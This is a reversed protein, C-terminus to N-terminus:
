KKLLFRQALGILSSGISTGVSIAASALQAGTSAVSKLMVLAGGTSLTFAVLPAGLGLLFAFSMDEFSQSKAIAIVSAYVGICLVYYIKILSINFVIILWSILANQQSPVIGMALAIPSSLAAAWQGFEMLNVFLKQLQYMIFKVIQHASFTYVPNFIIDNPSLQGQSIKSKIQNLWDQSAEQINSFFRILGACKGWCYKSEYEERLQEALRAANEYCEIKDYVKQQAPTLNEDTPRTPAPLAVAPAPLADCRRFVEELKDKASSTALQDNVVEAIKVGSIQAELIGKEWSRGLSHLGYALYGLRAGNNNLYYYVIFIMLLRPLHKRAWYAEGAASMDGAWQFLWWIGALTAVFSALYVMFFYPSSGDAFGANFTKQWTENWAAQIESIQNLSNELTQSQAFFFM